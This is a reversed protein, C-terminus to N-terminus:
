QSSSKVVGFWSPLFKYLIWLFFASKIISNLIQLSDSEASYTVQFFLVPIWLILLPVKESIQLVKKFIFRLFVGLIFMYFIGGNTGFNGYAEGIPGINTSWNRIRIGAYHEMNFVGGAEPKDPWLFRPVFSSAVTKFLYSGNDFPQRAPIRNMVLSVNVGQNSRMYLGFLM